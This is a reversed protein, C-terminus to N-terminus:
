EKNMLYQFKENQDIITEELKTILEAQSQITALQSAITSKLVDIERRAADLEALVPQIPPLPAPELNFHKSSLLPPPWTAVQFFSDDSSADNPLVLTHGALDVEQPRLAYAESADDVMADLAAFSFGTSPVTDMALWPHQLAQAGTWRQAPDKQLLGRIFSRGDESLHGLLEFNPLVEPDKLAEFLQKPTGSMHSEFPHRATAAVFLTVGLGWWDHPRGHLANEHSLLEPSM